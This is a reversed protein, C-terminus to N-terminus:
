VIGAGLGVPKREQAKRERWRSARYAALVDIAQPMPRPWSPVAVSFQGVRHKIAAIDIGTRSLKRNLADYDEDLAARGHGNAEAIPENALPLTM